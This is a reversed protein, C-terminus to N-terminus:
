VILKTAAFFSFESACHLLFCSLGFKQPCGTAAPGQVNLLCITSVQFRGRDLHNHAHLPEKAEWCNSKRHVQIVVVVIYYYYM